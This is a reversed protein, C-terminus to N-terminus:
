DKKLRYSFGGSTKGPSSQNKNSVPSEMTPMYIPEMPDRKRMQDNLNDPYNKPEKQIVGRPREYDKIELIEKKPTPKSPPTSNVPAKNAAPKPKQQMAM